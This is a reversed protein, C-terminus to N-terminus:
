GEAIRKRFRGLLDQTVPGPMGSGIVRGDVKVVSIVEAATGTLFCEEATYVDYRQMDTQSVAM